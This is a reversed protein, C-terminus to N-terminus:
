WCWGSGLNISGKASSSENRYEQTLQFKEGLPILLTVDDNDDDFRSGRNPFM